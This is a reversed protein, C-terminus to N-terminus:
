VCDLEFGDVFKIDDMCYLIVFIEILCELISYCIGYVKIWVIVEYWQVLVIFCQFCLVVLDFVGNDIVLLKLM